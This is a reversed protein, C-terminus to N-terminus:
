RLDPAAAAPPLEPVRSKSSAHMQVAQDRVVQPVTLSWRVTSDRDLQLPLKAPNSLQTFSPSDSDMDHAQVAVVTIQTQYQASLDLMAAMKLRGEFTSAPGASGYRRPLFDTDGLADFNVRGSEEESLQVTRGSHDVLFRATKSSSWERGAITRDQPTAWCALWIDPSDLGEPWRLELPSEIQEPASPCVVRVAYTEGARIPTKEDQMHEGWPAEVALICSGPRQLGLSVRGDADAAQQLQFDKSLFGVQFGAPLPGGSESVLQVSAPNWEPNVPAAPPPQHALQELRAMLAANMERGQSAITATRWFMGVCAVLMLVSAVMQVRQSMLKEWMADQWLKRAVRRPDGFRELVRERAAAEDTEQRRERELAAQLHDALEDRIDQRLHAPEDDRPAPLESAADLCDM